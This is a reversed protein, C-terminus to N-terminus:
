YESREGNIVQSAVCHSCETCTQTTPKEGSPCTVAALPCTICQESSTRTGSSTSSSSTVVSLSNPKIAYRGFPEIILQNILYPNSSKQNNSVTYEGLVNLTQADLIKLITKSNKNILLYAKKQDPTVKLAIVNDSDNFTVTNEKQMNLLNIRYVKYSTLGKQNLVSAVIAFSGDPSITPLSFGNSNNDLITITFKNTTLDLFHLVHVGGLSALVHKRGLLDFEKTPLISDILFFLDGPTDVTKFEETDTNYISISESLTSKYTVIAKRSDPTVQISSILDNVAITKEISGSDANVILCKPSQLNTNGAILKSGDTTLINFSGIDDNESLSRFALKQVSKNELNVSLLISKSSKDPIKFIFARKNNKSVSIQLTTSNPNSIDLPIKSTSTFGNNLYEYIKLYPSTSSDVVLIFSGDYSIGATTSNSFCSISDCKPLFSITEAYISQSFIFLCIFCFLNSLALKIFPKKSNKM